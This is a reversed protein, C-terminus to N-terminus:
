FGDPIVQPISLYQDFAKVMCEGELEHFGLRKYFGSGIESFLYALEFGSSKYLKCVQEVLLSAYGKRQYKKLTAVSGIGFSRKPLKLADRYIILSAIIEGQRELVFWTGIKYKPSDSCGQLYKEISDGGSWADFGMLYITNLDKAIAKRIKM